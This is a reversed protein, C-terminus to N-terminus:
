ATGRVALVNADHYAPDPTLAIHHITARTVRKITRGQWQDDVVRFGASADLCGARALELSEDALPTKALKITGVLGEDDWPDLAVAVGVTRQLDHDRNARVRGPNKEAGAFAGFSIIEVYSRDREYIKTPSECPSIVLEIERASATVGALEASRYEMPRSRAALRPQGYSLQHDPEQVVLPGGDRRRDLFSVAARTLLGHEPSSQRLHWREDAVQRFDLRGDLFMLPRAVLRAPSRTIAAAHLLVRGDEDRLTESSWYWSRDDEVEVLDGAVWVNAFPRCVGDDIHAVAILREANRELYTIEGIRPGGHELTVPFLGSGQNRRYDGAPTSRAHVGDWVTGDASAIEGFVTQTV